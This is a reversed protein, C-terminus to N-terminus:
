NDGQGCFYFQLYRSTHPDSAESKGKATKDSDVSDTSCNGNNSGSTDYVQNNVWSSNYDTTYTKSSRASTEHRDKRSKKRSSQDVTDSDYDSSDSGSAHSIKSNQDKRPEDRATKKKAFLASLRPSKRSANKDSDSQNKEDIDSTAKPDSTDPVLVIAPVIQPTAQKEENKLLEKAVKREHRRASSFHDLLGM